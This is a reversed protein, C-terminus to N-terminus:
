KVQLLELAEKYSLVEQLHTDLIKHNYECVVSNEESMSKLARKYRREAQEMQDKLLTIAITTNM